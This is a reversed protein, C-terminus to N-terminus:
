DNGSYVGFSLIVKFYCTFILFGPPSGSDTEELAEEVEDETVGLNDAFKSIFGQYM